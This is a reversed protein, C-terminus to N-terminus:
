KRLNLFSRPLFVGGTLVREVWSEEKSLSLKGDREGQETAAAYGAPGGGIVVVEAEKM